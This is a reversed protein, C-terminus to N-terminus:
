NRKLFHRVVESEANSVLERPKGRAIITKTVSDLFISDTGIAFISDLDHTIVVFTAGLSERLQIILEDLRRASLPDLGSSPEDFFLISPDLAMARALGARKKMGGSLESPYLKGFGALGVLSLKFDVIEAIAKSSFKTFQRLPMAVNEEVTMASWLAGSQYLIGSDRIIEDREDDGCKWFDRGNRYIVGEKPELLGILHRLLTSKGCGSGGMVIMTSGKIVDFDLDHQIITDGYATTLGRVSIPCDTNPAKDM